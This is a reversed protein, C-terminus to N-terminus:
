AVAAGRITERYRELAQARSTKLDVLAPVAARDQLWRERYRQQPDFKLAQTDPNFIRYYPAADTGCGAVWQWGLTNSPLDADVLTEWFWRAGNRWHIGLNKTLFSAVVMRVRNHMWGTEWLERMGADVLAIGTEGRQWAALLRGDRDKRWVGAQEFRENLSRDATWPFAHLVHRAFERWGIEGLFRRMGTRAHERQEFLLAQQCQDFVRAVSIEGFHLAPSLQSTGCIDPRDRQLEYDAVPEDLFAQLREHAQAEGPQWYAHLKHHWDYGHLLGLAAVAAQDPRLAPAAAPPMGALRERPLPEDELLAQARRWFPTFVRYPSGDDKRLQEPMLLCDDDFNRVVLGADMLVKHLEADRAALAPEVVRNWYVATVGNQVAHRHLVARAPGQLCCLPIGLRALAQQHALLSQQLYWRSAGGIAWHGEDQPSHLYVAQVAQGSARADEIAQALAPNDQVRLDRRFWVLLTM